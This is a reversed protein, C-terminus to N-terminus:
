TLIASHGLTMKPMLKRPESIAVDTFDASSGVLNRAEEKARSHPFKVVVSGRGTERCSKVPIAKLVNRLGDMSVSSPTSSAEEPTKPKM